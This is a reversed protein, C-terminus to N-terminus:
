PVQRCDVLMVVMTVETAMTGMTAMTVVAVMTVVSVVTVVTVAVSLKGAGTECKTCVFFGSVSAQKLCRESRRLRNYVYVAAMAGGLFDPLVRKFSSPTSFLGVIGIETQKIIARWTELAGVVVQAAM